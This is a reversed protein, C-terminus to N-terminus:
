TLNLFLTDWSKNCMSMIIMNYVECRAGKANYKNKGFITLFNARMQKNVSAMKM